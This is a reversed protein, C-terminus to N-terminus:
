EGTVQEYESIDFESKTLEEIFEAEDFKQLVIRMLTSIM